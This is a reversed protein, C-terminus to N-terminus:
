WIMPGLIRSFICRYPIYCRKVSTEEKGPAPIERTGEKSEFVIDKVRQDEVIARTAWSHLFLTVEVEEVMDNVVCKLM